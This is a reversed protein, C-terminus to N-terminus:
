VPTQFESFSIHIQEKWPSMEPLDRSLRAGWTLDSVWFFVSSKSQSSNDPYVWETKGRDPCGTLRSLSEHRCSSVISKVDLYLLSFQVHQSRRVWGFFIRKGNTSTVLSMISNSKQNWMKSTLLALDFSTWYMQLYPNKEGGERINFRKKSLFTLM